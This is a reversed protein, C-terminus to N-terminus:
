RIFDSLLLLPNEPQGILIKIKGDGPSRYVSFPTTRLKWNVWLETNAAVKEYVADDTIKDKSLASTDGKAYNAWATAPDNVSFLAASATKNDESSGFPLIRLQIAGSDIHPKLDNWYAVCHECTPNMLVYIYPANENGISFWYAQEVATYFMESKGTKQSDTATNESRRSDAQKIEPAVQQANDNKAPASQTDGNDALNLKELLTKQAEQTLARDELKKNLTQVQNETAVEGTPSLLLGFVVGGEPSAYAYQKRGDIVVAWGDLGHKTGLFYLTGNKQAAYNALLTPPQKNQAAVPSPVLLLIAAAFLGCLLYHYLATKKRTM